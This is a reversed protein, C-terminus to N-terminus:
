QAPPETQREEVMADAWKYAARCMCRYDLPDDDFEPRALLGSLAAAAFQDRLRQREAHQRQAELVAEAKDVLGYREREEPTLPRYKTDRM